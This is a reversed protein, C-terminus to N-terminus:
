RAQEAFFDFMPGFQPVVIDTHTGGPVEVYTVKVGLKRAAEVMSRSQAVPVTKDNDGHVVYQPIHKIKEVGAPNGGGAVPGLAAFLDPHNMAISWTGFGGMSHGMIYIRSADIKYMRRVEAMVDLVDKEAKGRYMSATERGKPCVVLWGRKEAEEKIVGARYGDFMSNEDGGMGHLAVVLPRAQKGDYQSPVFLRYPQLTQDVESRYAMRLDGRLAAFPDQGKEVADLVQHARAFERAFDYRHPSVEGADARAFLELTYEALPHKKEARNLRTQLRPAENGSDAVRVPIRKVYAARAKADLGGGSNTLRTELWYNGAATGAPIAVALRGLQAADITLKEALTAVPATSGEAILLVQGGFKEATSPPYIPHWSLSITQGPHIWAHDTKAELSSAFEVAPTWTAGHMIAM